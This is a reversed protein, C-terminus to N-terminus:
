ENKKSDLVFIFLEKCMKLRKLYVKKPAEDLTEILPKLKDCREILTKLEEKTLSMADNTKACIDEFETKWSDEAYASQPYFVSQVGFMSVLGIVVILISIDRFIKM